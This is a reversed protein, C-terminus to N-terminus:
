RNVWEDADHQVAEHRPNVRAESSLMSIFLDPLKVFDSGREEGNSVGNAALTQEVVAGSGM